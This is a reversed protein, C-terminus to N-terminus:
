TYARTTDLLDSNVTKIAEILEKYNNVRGEYKLDDPHYPTWYLRVKYIKGEVKRKLKNVELRYRGSSFGKMNSNLCFENLNGSPRIKWLNTNLIETILKDLMMYSAM